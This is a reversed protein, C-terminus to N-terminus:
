LYLLFSHFFDQKKKGQKGHKREDMRFIRKLEPLIRLCEGQRERGFLIRLVRDQDRLHKGCLVFKCEGGAPIIGSGCMEFGMRHHLFMMDFPGEEETVACPDQLLIRVIYRFELLVAAGDSQVGYGM